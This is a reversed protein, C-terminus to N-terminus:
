RPKRSGFLEAHTGTRVWIVEDGRECYVLLWDRALHCEMYGRWDVRGAGLAHPRWSEPLPEGSLFLDVAYDLTEFDFDPGIRRPLGKM